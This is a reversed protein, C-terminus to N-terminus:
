QKYGSKIVKYGGKIGETSESDGKPVCHRNSQTANQIPPDAFAESLPHHKLLSRFSILFCAIFIRPLLTDWASLVTLAFARRYPKALKLFVLM